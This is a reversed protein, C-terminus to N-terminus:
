ADSNGEESTSSTDTADTSESALGTATPTTGTRPSNSQDFLAAPPVRLLGAVAVSAGVLALLFTGLATVALSTFSVNPALSVGFAALIGIRALLWTAAYGIAVGLLTAPGAIRAADTLVKVFLQRPTAGTARYIGISRRRSHVARAFAATTTAVTAVGALGVLTGLLVRLNGFATVAARGLGSETTETREGTALTAVLREDGRVTFTTEALRRGDVAATVTHTGAGPRDLEIDVTTREGPGLEVTRIHSRTGSVTVRRQVSRNWPNAVALTVTPRDLADLDRSVLSLTGVLPRPTGAAVTFSQSVDSHGPKSATLRYSDPAPLSLSARGEPGTQVARSGLSVTANAAPQGTENRVDVFLTANPPGETPLPALRLMPGDTVIITRTRNAVSLPYRGLPLPDFTVEVTRREDPQLAVTRTRSENRLTVRLTRSTQTTGVNHITVAIAISEEPAVQEPTAVDVVAVGDTATLTRDPSVTPSNASDGASLPRSVRVVNVSSPGTNSLHRATQLPVLLHDDYLGPAQYVGVITVHAFAARNGGGLAFSDGLDLGTSRVLDRGVVAEGPSESTRGRLLTADSVNAFADFEVGRTLFPEDDVVSFVFVEPSAPVGGSRLATAYDADVRSSWPNGSGSQVITTEDPSSLPAVTTVVTIAVIAVAVFVALTAATPVVAGGPLLQPRLRDVSALPPFRERLISSDPDLRNGGALRALAGPSRRVAPLTAVAGATIGAVLVAVLAPGLVGVVRPTVRLSLTTPLGAFVAVNVAANTLVVGAAAGGAIGVTVLLGTRIAFLRVLRGRPLGTARLVALTALRDAVTMRTVSFVVIVVLVAVGVTVAGLGTLLQETGRLFFPLGGVLPSELVPGDVLSAASPSVVIAGTVGLQQVTEVHGVYWWLPVIDATTRSVPQVSVAESDGTLTLTGNLREAVRVTETDPPPPVSFVEAPESDPVGAVIVSKGDHTATATPLVLADSPANARATGPDDYATVTGTTNLHAARQTAEDAATVVVLTSGVLLTVVTAVLVVALRDRRSWRFLLAHRYSV